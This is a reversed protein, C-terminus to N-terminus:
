LKFYYVSYNFKFANLNNGITKTLYICAILYLLLLKLNSLYISKNIM